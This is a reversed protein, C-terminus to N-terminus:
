LVNDIIKIKDIMKSDNFNYYYLDGKHKDYHLPIEVYLIYPAEVSNINKIAYNNNKSDSMIVVRDDSKRWGRGINFPYGKIIMKFIYSYGRDLILKNTYETSNIECFKYENDIVKVYYNKSSKYKIELIPDKIQSYITSKILTNLIDFNIIKSKDKDLLYVTINNTGVLINDMYFTDSNSKHPNLKRNFSYIWKYDKNFKLKFYVINGNIEVNTIKITENIINDILRNNMENNKNLISNLYDLQIGDTPIFFKRRVCINLNNSLYHRKISRTQLFYGLVYSLFRMNSNSIGYLIMYKHLDSAEEQTMFKSTKTYICKYRIPIYGTNLKVGGLEYAFKLKVFLSRVDRVLEPDYYFLTNIIYMDRGIVDEYIVSPILKVDLEKIKDVNIKNKISLKTFLTSM